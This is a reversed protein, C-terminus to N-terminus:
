DQHTQHCCALFSFYPGPQKVGHDHNKLIEMATEDETADSSADDDSCVSDSGVSSSSASSAAADDESFCSASCSSVSGDESSTDGSGSSSSSSSSTANYDRRALASLARDTARLAARTKADYFEVNDEDPRNWPLNDFM